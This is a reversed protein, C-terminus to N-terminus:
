EEMAAAKIANMFQSRNRKSKKESKAMTTLFMNVTKEDRAKKGKELIGFLM